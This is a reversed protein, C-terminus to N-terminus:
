ASAPGYEADVAATLQPSSPAVGQRAGYGGEEGGGGPM